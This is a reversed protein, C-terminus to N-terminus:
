GASCATLSHGQMLLSINHYYTLELISYYISSKNLIYIIIVIGVKIDVRKVGAKDALVGTIFVDDLWLFETGARRYERVLALLAAQSLIYGLGACFSPFSEDSFFM